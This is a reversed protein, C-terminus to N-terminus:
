RGNRCSTTLPLDACWHAAGGRLQRMAEAIEAPSMGHFHLHQGGDQVAPQQQAPIQHAPRQAPFQLPQQQPQLYPTYGAQMMQRMAQYQLWRQRAVLGVSVAAGVGLCARGIELWRLRFPDVPVTVEKTEPHVM